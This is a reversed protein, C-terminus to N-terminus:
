GRLWGGRERDWVWHRDWEGSAKVSEFELGSLVEWGWGTTECVDQCGCFHNAKGTHSRECTM